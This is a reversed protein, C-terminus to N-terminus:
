PAYPPFPEVSPDRVIRGPALKVDVFGAMARLQCRIPASRGILVFNQLDASGPSPLRFARTYPFEQQLTTLASRIRENQEGRGILNLAIGGRPHLKRRCLRFFELSTLHRPTGEDTFADLVIYDYAEDSEGALAARGDGVVVNDLAYGFFRRSADLVAEEIEAIKCRKDKLAQGMTGVGHGIVFVSEYDPDNEEMLHMIARPYELVIRAPDNLDVAGQVAGDAFRLARFAGKEGYLENTEYVTLAGGGVSRTWLERM